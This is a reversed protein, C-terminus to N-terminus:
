EANEIGQSNSHIDTWPPPLDAFATLRHATLHNAVSAHVRSLAERWMWWELRGLVAVQLPEALRFKRYAGKFPRKNRKDYGDTEYEYWRGFGDRRRRMVFWAPNGWKRVPVVRPPDARWEPERGMVACRVTLGVIHEGAARSGKGYWHALVRSVEDAIVGHPDDFEPFPTWGPPPMHLGMASLAKVANGAVVADAHPEGEEFGPVVGYINPDRDILSFLEGYESVLSFNSRGVASVGGGAGVKWLEQTFAWTLLGEITVTKM